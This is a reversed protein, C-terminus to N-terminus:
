QLFRDTQTYIHSATVRKAGYNQNCVSIYTNKYIVLNYWEYWENQNPPPDSSTKASHSASRSSTITPSREARSSLYGSAESNGSNSTVAFVEAM